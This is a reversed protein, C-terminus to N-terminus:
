LERVETALAAAPLVHINPALSYRLLGPYVVVLRDLRLDEMAIRMSPTIRPADARKVEVGIRRGNKVFFLDLEAGQHTAWFYAESPRAIALVQEIV